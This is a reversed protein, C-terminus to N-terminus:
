PDEHLGTCNQDITRGSAPEVGFSQQVTLRSTYKKRDFHILPNQDNHRESGIDHVIVFQFTLIFAPIVTYSPFPQWM